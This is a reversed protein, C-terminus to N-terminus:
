SWPLFHQQPLHIKHGFAFQGASTKSWTAVAFVWLEGASTALRDLKATCSSMLWKHLICSHDAFEVAFKLEAELAYVQELLAAFFVV